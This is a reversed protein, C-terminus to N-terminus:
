VHVIYTDFDFLTVVYYLILYKSLLLILLTSEKCLVTYLGACIREISFSKYVHIYVIHSLDGTKSRPNM